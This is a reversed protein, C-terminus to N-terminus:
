VNGKVIEKIEEAKREETHTDRRSKKGRHTHTHQSNQIVTQKTLESIQPEAPDKSGQPSEGLQRSPQPACSGKGHLESDRVQLSQFNCSRPELACAWCDHSMSEAAGHCTPKEQVLSRVQIGQEPLSIRWWQAGPFAGCRKQKCPLCSVHSEAPETIVRLRWGLRSGFEFSEKWM